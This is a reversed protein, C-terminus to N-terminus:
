IAQNQNGEVLLFILCKQLLSDYLIDKKKKKKKKENKSCTSRINM